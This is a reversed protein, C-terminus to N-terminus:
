PVADYHGRCRAEWHGLGLNGELKSLALPLCRAPGPSPPHSKFWTETPLGENEWLAPVTICTSTVQKNWAM